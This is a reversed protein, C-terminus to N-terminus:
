TYYRGCVVMWDYNDEQVWKFLVGSFFTQTVMYQWGQARFPEAAIEVDGLDYLEGKYRIFEASGQGHEIAAWDLYDFNKRDKESLEYAQIIERPKNDTKIEV